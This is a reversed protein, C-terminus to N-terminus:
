GPDEVRVRVRRVRTPEAELVTLTIGDAVHTQGVAPIRQMATVVYGGITDYEAEEPLSTGLLRNLEDVPLRADVDATHDDVRRFMTPELPEHEDSIEGVLQEVVDEITLLGATGDFEDSVIAIHVKQLKFDQLLDSLLKTRPVFLPTRLIKRLNFQDRPQNWVSLLDRAYVVGVVHDISGEYVPIRSHGTEEIRSLLTHLETDIPLAVMERRPTMAEDVTRDKFEMVSEILQRQRNDVVGEQQGMEVAELIEEQITSSREHDDQQRETNVSRDVLSDTAHMLHTIPSLVRRLMHLPAVCYAIVSEGIHSAIARPLAISAITLILVSVAVALVYQLWDPFPEYRRFLDVCALLVITNCLLRGIGCLFSLEGAYRITPEFLDDQGRRGLADALRTRSMDRLAYTLTTSLLSFFPFFTLALITLWLRM